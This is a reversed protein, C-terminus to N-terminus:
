NTVTHALPKVAKLLGVFLGLFSFVSLERSEAKEKYSVYM